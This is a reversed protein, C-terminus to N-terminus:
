GAMTGGFSDLAEALRREAAHDPCLGIRLWRPEFDFKRTLIRHRCLTEHIALARPDEVLAFLDTSGAVRLGTDDLVTRLTRHRTTIQRAIHRFLADDRLLASAAALAPGSVSWPGQLRRLASLSGEDGLVFGLRLGALGYFKGFSRLVILGPRGAASAVSIEPRLDAFAEDVILWGQREALRDALSLLEEPAWCRGDPNNPNVVVVNRHHSAVEALSKVDDVALGAMEFCRRYEAYTPGIVAVPGDLLQPLMQIAAQVGAVPLPRVTSGYRHAAATAAEDSLMRDPLRQLVSPDIPPLPPSQPNIGTSLDLWEGPAGGYRECAADLAGGHEVAAGITRTM